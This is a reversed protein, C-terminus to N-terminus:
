DCSWQSRVMVAPWIYCKLTSQRCKIQRGVNRANTSGWSLTIVLSYSTTCHLAFRTLKSLLNSFIHIYGDPLELLIRKRLYGSRRGSVAVLFWLMTTRTLFSRAEWIDRTGEHTGVKWNNQLYCTTSFHTLLKGCLEWGWRSSPTLIAKKRPYHSFM